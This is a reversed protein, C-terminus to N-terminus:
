FVEMEGAVRGIRSTYKAGITHQQYKMSQKNYIHIIYAANLICQSKNTAFCFQIACNLHTHVVDPAKDTVAGPVLCISVNHASLKSQGISTCSYSIYFKHPLSNIM